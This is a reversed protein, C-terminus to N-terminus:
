VPHIKELTLTAVSFLELLCWENSLRSHQRQCQVPCPRCPRVSVLLIARTQPSWDEKRIEQGQNIEDTVHILWMNLKVQTIVNLVTDGTRFVGFNWIQTELKRGSIEVQFNCFNGNLVHELSYGDDLDECRIGM